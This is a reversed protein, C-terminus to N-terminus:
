KLPSDRRESTLWDDISIGNTVKMGVYGLESKYNTRYCMVCASKLSLIHTHKPPWDKTEKIVVLRLLHETDILSKFCVYAYSFSEARM